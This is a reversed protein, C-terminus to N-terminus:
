PKFGIPHQEEGEEERLGFFLDIEGETVGVMLCRDEGMVQRLEYSEEELVVISIHTKELPPTPQLFVQEEQDLVAEYLVDNINFTGLPHFPVGEPENEIVISSSEGAVLKLDDKQALSLPLGQQKKRQRAAELNTINTGTVEEELMEMEDDEAGMAEDWAAWAAQAEQQVEQFRQGLRNRLARHERASASFEHAIEAWPDIRQVM